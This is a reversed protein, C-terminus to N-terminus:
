YLLFNICSNSHGIHPYLASANKGKEKRRFAFHGFHKDKSRCRNIHNNKFFFVSKKELFIERDLIM